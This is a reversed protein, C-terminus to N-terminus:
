IILSRGIFGRQFGGTAQEWAPEDVEHELWDRDAADILRDAEVDEPDQVLV